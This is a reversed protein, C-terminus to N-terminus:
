PPGHALNGPLPERILDTKPTGEGLAGGVRAPSDGDWRGGKAMGRMARDVLRDTSEM